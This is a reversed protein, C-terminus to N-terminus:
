SSCSTRTGRHGRQRPRGGASVGGNASTACMMVSIIWTLRAPVDISSCTPSRPRRRGSSGGGKFWPKVYAVNRGYVLPILAVRDAVAMRDAEHFLELRERDSRERASTRDARRVGSVRVRGRENPQGVPVAAAPLVRSGRLGPVMGHLPDARGRPHDHAHAGRGLTWSEVRVDLGFRRAVQRWAQSSRGSGTEMGGLELEGAVGSAELYRRAEDPDFRPAIDPTHGQLAPPVVGGTAVVLNDPVVRELAERDVAHALARRFDVNSMVPDAHDFGFYGSWAAPGLQADDRVTPVLDALKPTYRVTAIDLEGREYPEIRM